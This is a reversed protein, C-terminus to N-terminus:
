CRKMTNIEDPIENNRTSQTSPALAHASDDVTDAPAIDERVEAEEWAQLKAAQEKAEIEARERDRRQEALPFSTIIFFCDREGDLIQNHTPVWVIYGM